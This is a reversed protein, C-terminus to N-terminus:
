ADSRELIKREFEKFSYINMKQEDEESFSQYTDSGSIVLVNRNRVYNHKIEINAIEYTNGSKLYYINDLEYIM